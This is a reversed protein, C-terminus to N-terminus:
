IKMKFNNLIDFTENEANRSHVIIPIRLMISAQIHQEFSQIQKKDKNYYFRTQEGVGIIKRSKLM